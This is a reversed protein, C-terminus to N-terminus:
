RDRLPRDSGKPDTWCITVKLEGTGSAVVDFSESQANALSKEQILFKNGGNAGSIGPWDNGMNIVGWGYQYDPGTAPGAEDATQIM